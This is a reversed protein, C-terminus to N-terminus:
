DGRPERHPDYLREVAARSRRFPEALRERVQRGAPMAVDFVWAGCLIGVADAGLDGWEASRGPVYYQVAEILVGYALVGGLVRWRAVGAGSECGRAWGCCGAAALAAFALLHNLKDWGTGVTPLTTPVLALYGVAVAMAAFLWRAAVPARSAQAAPPPALESAASSPPLTDAFASSPPHSDFTPPPVPFSPPSLGAVGSHGRGRAAPCGAPAPNDDNSHPPRSSRGHERTADPTRRPPLPHRSQEDSADM